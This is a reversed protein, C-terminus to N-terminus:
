AGAFVSDAIDSRFADIASQDPPRQPYTRNSLIVLAIGKGRDCVVSCGTFGTKGFAREGHKTGLFPGALQWGLGASMGLHPIQNTGMADVIESSFYRAGNITGGQLLMRLYLLLDPVTSFLGAHGVPRQASHKFVCASEDHVVGQVIGGREPNVETPAIEACPLQKEPFFTTRMMGLPDFFRERAATDLDKGLVRELLVGLLFAPLNTYSFSAGPRASFDHSFIRKEIMEPPNDKLSSLSYGGVLTYTLLHRVTVEDAYRMHMEPVYTVVTGDLALRGEDILRLALSATAVSKTISAVDYITDERVTPASAEDTLYGYPLVSVADSSVIGICCGPFVHEAIAQRVRQGIAETNM